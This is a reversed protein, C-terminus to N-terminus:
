SEVGLCDVCYHDLGKEMAGRRGLNPFHVADLPYSRGCGKCQAPISASTGQIKKVTLECSTNWEEQADARSELGTTRKELAGIRRVVARLQKNEEVLRQVHPSAEYGRKGAAARKAKLDDVADKAKFLTM